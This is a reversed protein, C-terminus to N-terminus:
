KSFGEKKYLQRNAKEERRNEDEMLQRENEMFELDARRTGPLRSREEAAYTAADQPNPLVTPRILIIMERRQDSDKTTRFLAGLIPLDKLIPVGSKSKNKTTAIFGGLMISERDRVAVKARAERDITEPVSFNADIPVDEGIQQIKTHIDMVVLGENNILPLVSLTLGIQQQQFQTQPGGGFYSYSGTVYPRTQGVFLNAEVAHSTQIRPRSIVNVRSDSAIATATADFNMFSAYYSFGSPLSSSANSAVSAITGFNFANLFPVNKVAGIGTAVDGFKTPTKQIYSVGYSLDNGLSVEMVIAEILVQQLVVDLKEIINSITVLDAKTAFILLANIREDAIIKTNGLVFIDGGAGGSAARNVIQQLRNQFGGRGGAGGTGGRLGGQLGQQQNFANPNNPNYGPQGPLGGAGGWGGSLGGSLGGVGGSLGGRQGQGGVTTTQGGGQTLNGLVTAIDGALAYKIPIVVSEFDAQPMVDIKRIMEVMRKVNETYDRLVIMSTSPISLISNPAKSFPTLVPVIDNPAANTLQIVQTIFGGMEPLEETPRQNDKAGTNGAQAEPVAKIFKEGIPVMSIGNMGLVTDLAQVGEALTLETQTRISIKAQPLSAPKLVTRGTLDQYVELVQNLDAEQFKILGAPLVLSGAGPAAAAGAAGPAGAGAAGAGAAGAAPTGAVNRGPAPAAGATAPNVPTAQLGSRNTGAVTANTARAFGPFPAVPNTAARNAPVGPAPTTAFPRAPVPSAGPTIAPANTAGAAQGAAAVVQAANPNPAQASSPTSPAAPGYAKELAARAAAEAQPSLGPTVVGPQNTAAHAWVGALFLATFSMSFTKV